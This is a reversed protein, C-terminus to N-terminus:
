KQTAISTHEGFQAVLTDLAKGMADSVAAGANSWYYVLDGVGFGKWVTTGSCDVLSLRAEAHTPYSGLLYNLRQEHRASGILVGSVNYQKCLEGVRTAAEVHDMIPSEVMTIGKSQMKKAFETTAFELVTDKNDPLQFPVLLLHDGVSEAGASTKPANLAVSVLLTLANFDSALHGNKVIGDYVNLRHDSAVDFTTVVVRYGSDGDVVQGTAYLEAGAAAAADVDRQQGPTIVTADYGNVTAFHGVLDSTLTSAVQKLATTSRLPIVVILRAKAFAPGACAVFIAATLALKRLM